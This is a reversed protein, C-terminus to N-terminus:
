AHVFWARTLTPRKLSRGASLRSLRARGVEAKVSRLFELDLTYEKGASKGRTEPARCVFTCKEHSTALPRCLSFGM